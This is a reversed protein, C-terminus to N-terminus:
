GRPEEGQEGPTTPPPEAATGDILQAPEVGLAEALKRVTPPHGENGAELRVITGKSVGARQALENQSLARSERVARLKLAKVWNEKIHQVAM